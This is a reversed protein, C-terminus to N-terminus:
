DEGHPETRRWRCGGQRGLEVDCCGQLLASEYRVALEAGQAGEEPLGANRSGRRPHGVNTLVRAVEFLSGILFSWFPM